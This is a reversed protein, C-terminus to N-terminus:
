DREIEWWGRLEEDSGNDAVHLCNLEGERCDDNICEKARDEGSTTLEERLGDTLKSTFGWYRLAVRHCCVEVTTEFTHTKAPKKTPKKTTTV